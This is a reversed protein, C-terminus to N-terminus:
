NSYQPGPSAITCRQGFHWQLYMAPRPAPYSHKPSLANCLIDTCVSIVFHKRRDEHATTITLSSGCSGCFLLLLYLEAFLTSMTALDQNFDEHRSDAQATAVHADRHLLACDLSRDLENLAHVYMSLALRLPVKGLIWHLFFTSM